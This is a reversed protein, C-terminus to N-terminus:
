NELITSIHSPTVWDELFSPNPTLHWALHFHHIITFNPPIHTPNPFIPAYQPLITVIEPIPHSTPQVILPLSSSSPSLSLTLHLLAIAVHTQINPWPWTVGLLFTYAYYYSNAWFLFFVSFSRYDTTFQNFGM